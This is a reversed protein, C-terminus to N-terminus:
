SAVATRIEGFALKHCFAETEIAHREWTYGRATERARLGIDCSFKRHLLSWELLQRFTENDGTECSLADRGHTTVDPLGGERFGVVCMGAAMAELFVKGFGEFLSPFLLVDHQAYVQALQSRTMWPKVSLRGAFIPTYISKVDEVSDAPVVFTMRVDPFKEAVRPLQQELVTSGKRPLYQGAFLIQAPAEPIRAAKESRVHEEVGYPIVAVRKQDIAYRRVVFQACLDSSAILGQCGRASRECARQLLASSARQFPQKLISPQRWHLQQWSETGREEWGHTRNLFLTNPFEAPLREFVLYSYPQSLIVVDYRAKRLADTVRKLQRQPLEILDYLRPHPLLGPKTDKWLYDVRHGRRELADGISLLSGEAGSNWKPVFESVFLFRM